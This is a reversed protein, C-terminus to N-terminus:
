RRLAFEIRQEVLQRVVRGDLEAPVYRTHALWRRVANAFLPHTAAIIGISSSEVNGLTDVVFRAVVEGEIAAARLAGPYHPQGNEPRPLVQRDVRDATLASGSVVSVTRPSRVPPSEGFIERASMPTRDFDISAEFRPVAPLRLTPLAPSFRNSFSESRQRASPPPPPPPPPPPAVFILPPIPQVAMVEDGASRISLVVTLTVIVVHIGASAATWRRRRDIAIARSELLTTFM